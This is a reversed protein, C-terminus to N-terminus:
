ESDILLKKGDMFWHILSRDQCDELLQDINKNLKPHVFCAAIEKLPLLVFQRLHLQRHPICLMPHMLIVNHYTLIDIDIKRPGWRYINKRGIQREIKQILELLKFPELRTEIEVAMNLFLPQDSIGYPESEYISSITTLRIESSLSLVKLCRALNKLRDGLNTGLGLFIGIM